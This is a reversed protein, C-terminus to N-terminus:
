SALSLAKLWKITDQGHRIMKAIPPAGIDDDGIVPEVLVGKDRTESVTVADVVQEHWEGDIFARVIDNLLFDEGFRWPLGDAVTFRVTKRAKHEYLATAGSQVADATFGGAGGNAYTERLYFPGNTTATDWNHFANFAMFVDDLENTIINGVGALGFFSLAGNIIANAGASILNNVFDYTKGGVVVHAATSTKGSVKSELIGGGVREDWAVVVNKRPPSIRLVLTPKVLTSGGPQPDGPTWMFLEVHAGTDRLADKFLEDFPAMRAMFNVWENINFWEVGEPWVIHVPLNYRGKNKLMYYHVATDMPGIYPDNKPWQSVLPLLPNPYALVGGMHRWDSVLQATLTKDGYVGKNEYTHVRGTWKQGRFHLHVPVTDGYPRSATPACERLRPAAPSDGPLVLTGAAAKNRAFTFKAEIHDTINGM